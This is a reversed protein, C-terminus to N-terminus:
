ADTKGEKGIPKLTIYVGLVMIGWLVGQGVADLLAPDMDLLINIINMKIRAKFEQPKITIFHIKELVIRHPAGAEWQSPSWM